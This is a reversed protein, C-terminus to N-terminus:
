STVKPPLPKTTPRWLTPDRIDDVCFGADPHWRCLSIVDPLDYDVGPAFVRVLKDKPATEIPQWAEAEIVALAAELARAAIGRREHLNMWDLDSKMWILMADVARRKTEPTM